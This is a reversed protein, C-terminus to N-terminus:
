EIKMTRKLNMIIDELAYAMDICEDKTLLDNINKQQMSAHLSKLQSVFQNCFSQDLVGDMKSRDVMRLIEGLETVFHKIVPESLAKVELLANFNKCKDYLKMLSQFKHEVTNNSTSKM